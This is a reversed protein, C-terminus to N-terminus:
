VQVPNGNLLLEIKSCPIRVASRKEMVSVCYAMTEKVTQACAIVGQEINKDDTSAHIIIGHETFAVTQIAEHKSFEFVDKESLGEMSKWDYLLHPNRDSAIDMEDAIRLVAALTALNATSGEGLDFDMPYLTEDMLDTKRHGRGVEAIAHAYRENPIELMRWYKRVFVASFEHHFKRILVSQPMDPHGNAYTRLNADDIYSNVASGSVGMGIDHLAASMLYIYIESANLKSVEERLLYNTINTVNLSHLLTHDTFTPFAALIKKLIHEFINMCCTYRYALDRNREKLRRELTFDFNLMQCM